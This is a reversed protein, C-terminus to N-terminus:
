PINNENFDEIRFTKDDIFIDYYPKNCWVEHSKVGWSLLQAKTFETWDTGTRSGRATWYIIKHGRDYLKNMKNINDMIPASKHYDRPNDPTVCITEDIDVFIVKM